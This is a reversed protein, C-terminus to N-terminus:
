STKKDPTWTGLPAAPVPVHIGSTPERGCRCNGAGSQIDRAYVHPSNYQFPYPGLSGDMGPVRKSM